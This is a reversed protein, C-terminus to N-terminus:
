LIKCSASFIQKNEIRMGRFRVTGKMMFGEADNRM